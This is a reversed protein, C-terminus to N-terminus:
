RFLNEEYNEVFYILTDIYFDVIAPDDQAVKDNLLLQLTEKFHTKLETISEIKIKEYLGDQLNVDWDSIDEYEFAGEPGIQFNDSVYPPTISQLNAIVEPIPSFTQDIWQEFTLKSDPNNELYNKYQTELTAM